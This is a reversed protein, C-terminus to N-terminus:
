TCVHPWPHPKTVCVVVSHAQMETYDGVEQGLSAQTCARCAPAMVTTGSRMPWTSAPWPTAACPQLVVDCGGTRGAAVAPRQVASCLLALSFSCAASGQHQGHTATLNLSCIIVWCLQSAASMM